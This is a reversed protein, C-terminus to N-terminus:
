DRRPAGAPQQCSARFERPTLGTQKRFYRSFYSTDAFGLSHAIQKVDLESYALLRQAERVLRANVPAMAPEGLEERCIRGLQAASIGLAGAYLELPWHQHFHRNVLERFQELLLARRGKDPRPAPAPAALRSIQVLLTLLLSLGAAVHGPAESRAEEELLLFLPWLPESGDAPWPLPLIAPRQLLGLLETSVIRAMSELPRQAASIVPGDTDQDHSFAHVTRCPLLIICPAAFRIRQHEISVAGSGQRIYMLQLLADHRHPHIEGRYTPSRERIWEVHLLDRWVPSPPEGYLAYNPISKMPRHKRAVPHRDTQIAHM